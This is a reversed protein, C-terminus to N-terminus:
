NYPFDYIFFFMTYMCYENINHGPFMLIESYSIVRETLYVYVVVVFHSLFRRMLNRRKNM